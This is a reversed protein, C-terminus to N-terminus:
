LSLIFSSKHLIFIVIIQNLSRRLKCKTDHPHKHTEPLCFFRMSPVLGKNKLNVISMPPM